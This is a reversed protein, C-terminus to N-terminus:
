TALHLRHLHCAIRLRHPLAALSSFPSHLRRHPCAPRRRLPTRRPLTPRRRCVDAHCCLDHRFDRDERWTLLYSRHGVPSRRCRHGDRQSVRRAPSWSHRLSRSDRCWSIGSFNRGISQPHTRAGTRSRACTRGDMDSSYRGTLRRPRFACTARGMRAPRSMRSLLFSLCLERLAM